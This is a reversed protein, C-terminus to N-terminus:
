ICKKSSEPVMAGIETLRRQLTRKDLYRIPLYVFKSIRDHLLRHAETFALWKEAKTGTAAAPDPIGYHCSMPQGPRIPCFEPAANDCVTFVFDLPTVDSEAFEAWSKSRLGATPYHLKELLDLAYPHVEGKPDSGASHGIFRCGGVSNIFCEAQISRASNGTCLFLVNFTKDETM